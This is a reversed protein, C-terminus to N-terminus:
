PRPTIELYLGNVSSYAPLSCVQSSADFCVASPTRVEQGDVHQRIMTFGALHGLRKTLGGSIQVWLETDSDAVFQNLEETQAIYDEARTRTLTTKIRQLHSELSSIGFQALSYELSHVRELALKYEIDGIYRPRMTVANAIFHLKENENEPDRKKHRTTLGITQRHQMFVRRNSGSTQLRDSYPGRRYTTDVPLTGSRLPPYHELPDIKTQQKAM